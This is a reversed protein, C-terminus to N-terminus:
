VMVSGGGAQVTRQQCTPDMSEPPQRWVRVLGDTRNLQFRSEDSWAVYKRHATSLPKKMKKFTNKALM